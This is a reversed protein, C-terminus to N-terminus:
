FYFKFFQHLFLTFPRLIGYFIRPKVEVHKIGFFRNTFAVLAESQQEAENGTAMKNKYRETRDSVFKHSGDLLFVHQVHKGRAVLQCTIEIAVCAGFSYGAM